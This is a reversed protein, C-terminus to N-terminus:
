GHDKIAGFDVKTDDSLRKQGLNEKDQKDNLALLMMTSLPDKLRSFLKLYKRIIRNATNKIDQNEEPHCLRRHKM